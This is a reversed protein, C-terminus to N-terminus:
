SMSKEKRQRRHCQGFYMLVDRALVDERLSLEEFSDNAIKAESEHDNRIKYNIYNKQSNKSRKSGM